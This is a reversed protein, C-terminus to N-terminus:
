ASSVEKREGRAEAEVGRRRIGECPAVARVLFSDPVLSGLGPADGVVDKVELRIEATPVFVVCAEMGGSMGRDIDAAFLLAALVLLRQLLEPIGAGEVIVRSPGLHTEEGRDM